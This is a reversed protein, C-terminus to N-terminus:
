NTVVVVVYITVFVVVAVLVVVVVVLVVVVFEGVPCLSENSALVLDGVKGM